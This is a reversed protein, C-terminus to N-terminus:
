RRIEALKLLKASIKFRNSVAFDSNMEVVIRDGRRVLGVMGGARTFGEADSVTLISDCDVANFIQPWKKVETESIFLIHCPELDEVLFIRKIVIPHSDQVLEGKVANELLEGFPDNGLITINFESKSGSFSKEPWTIFNTLNYLFVAKIQYEPFRDPQGFLSNVPCLLMGLLIFFCILWIRGSQATRCTRKKRIPM